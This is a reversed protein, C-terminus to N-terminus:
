FLIKGWTGASSNIGLNVSNIVVPTSALGFKFILLALFLLKQVV